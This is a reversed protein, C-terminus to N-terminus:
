IGQIMIAVSFAVFVGESGNTRHSATSTFIQRGRVMSAWTIVFRLQQKLETTACCTFCASLRTGSWDLLIGRAHGISCGQLPRKQAVEITVTTSSVATIFLHIIYVADARELVFLVTRSQRQPEGSLSLAKITSALARCLEPHSPSEAPEPIVAARAYIFWPFPLRPADIPHLRPLFIHSANSSADCESWTIVKEM